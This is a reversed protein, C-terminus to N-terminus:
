YAGSKQSIRHGGEGREVLKNEVNDRIKSPRRELFYLLGFLLVSFLVQFTYAFADCFKFLLNLVELFGFGRHSIVILAFM